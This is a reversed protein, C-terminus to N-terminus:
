GSCKEYLHMGGATDPLSLCEQRDELTCAEQGASTEQKVIARLRGLGWNIAKSQMVFGIVFGIGFRRHIEYSRVRCNTLRIDSTKFHSRKAFFSKEERGGEGALKM